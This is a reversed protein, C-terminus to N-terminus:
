MGVQPYLKYLMEWGLHYVEDPTMDTTTFFRLAHEYLQKGTVRIETGPLLGNTTAESTKTGNLYVFPLPLNALGSSVKSPVCHTM